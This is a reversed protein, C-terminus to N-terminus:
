KVVSRVSLRRRTNVSDLSELWSMDVLAADSNRASVTSSLSLSATTSATSPATIPAVIGGAQQNTLLVNTDQGNVRGDRNLDFINTVPASNAAASQNLLLQNTDQGNVRLRTLTNGFNLEGIVNGFYFVDDAALGTQQNSV